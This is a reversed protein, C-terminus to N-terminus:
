TEDKENPKNEKKLLDSVSCNLVTTLTDLEEFSINKATNKYLQNIRPYNLNSLLQLRYRSIKKKELIEKLKLKVM